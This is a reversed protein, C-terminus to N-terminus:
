ATAELEPVPRLRSVTLVGDRLELEDRVPEVRCLTTRRAHLDPRDRPRAGVGEGARDPAIEPVAREVRLVRNEIADDRDVILLERKGETPGNQSVFKMEKPVKLQLSLRSRTHPVRRVRGEVDLEAVGLRDLHAAAAHVVLEGRLSTQHAFRRLAPAPAREVRAVRAVGGRGARGSIGVPLVECLQCLYQAIAGDVLDLHSLGSPDELICIQGGPRIM